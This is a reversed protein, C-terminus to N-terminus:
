IKLFPNSTMLNRFGFGSYRLIEGQLRITSMLPSISEKFILAGNVNCRKQFFVFSNVETKPEANM